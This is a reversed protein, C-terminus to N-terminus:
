VQDSPALGQLRARPETPVLKWWIATTDKLMVTLRDVVAVGFGKLVGYFPSSGARKVPVRQAVRESGPGYAVRALLWFAKM